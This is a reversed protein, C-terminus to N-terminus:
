VHLVVRDPDASANAQFRSRRALFVQLLVANVAYYISTGAAIGLVGYFYYGGVKLVIGITFGFIGIRTPITTEGQAYFSSSLVQGAAGGIWVGSLCLLIWWFHDVDGPQFRGRELVFSFIPRGVLVIGITVAGTLLIMAKLRAGSISRFSAWDDEKAREALAPVMPVAVAKNLLLHGATNIQQALHLLSLEGTPAMSALFRDVFRESKFYISGGLLPLVRRWIEQVEPAGWRPRQYRGLAPMLLTVQLASTVVLAWAAAAVGLSPLMTVMFLLGVVAALASSTEAWVFERRASRLAWLVSLVASCVVGILQVRVLRVTLAVAPPEFGPVTWGVWLPAAIGLLLAGGGFVVVLGQVLTWGLRAQEGKENTSLLPVLVHSLSGTVVALVLQPIMMGAFLADTEQGPGIRTLLYWQNLFSVLVSLGSLAALKLSLRV